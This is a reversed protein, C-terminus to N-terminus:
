EYINEDEDLYSSSAKPNFNDNILDFSPSDDINSETIPINVSDYNLSSLQYFTM